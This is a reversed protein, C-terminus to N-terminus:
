NLHIRKIATLTNTSTSHTVLPSSTSIFFTSKQGNKLPSLSNVKLQPKIIKEGNIQHPNKCGKCKCEICAKSGTYCPCRQGGCTLKGPTSSANGCRCGKKSVIVTKTTSQSTTLGSPNLHVVFDASKNPLYDSIKHFTKNVGNSPKFPYSLSPRLTTKIIQDRGIKNGNIMVHSRKSSNTSQHNHIKIWQGGKPVQKAPSTVVVAKPVPPATVSITEVKTSSNDKNTEIETVHYKIDFYTKAFKVMKSIFKSRSSYTPVIVIDEKVEEEESSDDQPLTNFARLVYSCLNKINDMLLALM